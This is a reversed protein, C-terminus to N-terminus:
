EASAGNAHAAREFLYRDTEVDFGRVRVVQTGIQIAGDRDDCTRGAAEDM